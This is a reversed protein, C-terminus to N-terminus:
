EARLGAARVLAGLRAHEIRAFAAFETPSQVGADAGAEHFWRQGEDGTAMRNIEHNLQVIIPAPTAAPAAVGTWGLYAYAPLGAEAFTPVDPLQPLRATGTM